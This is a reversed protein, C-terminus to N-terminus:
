SKTLTRKMFELIEARSDSDCYLNLHCHRDLNCKSIKRIKPGEYSDILREITAAPAVEDHENFIFLIPPPTPGEALANLCKEPDISESVELSSVLALPFGLFFLPWYKKANSYVITKPDIMAETIIAYPPPISKALCVSTAGSVSIGFLVVKEEKLTSRTYTYFARADSVVSDLSPNGDNKDFGQYSYVLVRFGQNHLFSSYHATHEIGMGSGGGVLVIGQDNSNEFLLGTLKQGSENTVQVTKPAVPYQPRVPQRQIAARALYPHLLLDSTCGTQLTFLFLCITLNANTRSHFPKLFM